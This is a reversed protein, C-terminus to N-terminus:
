REKLNSLFNLNIQYANNNSRSILDNYKMQRKKYTLMQKIEQEVMELPKKEGAPLVDVIRAFYSENKLTFKFFSTNTKQKQLTTIFGSPIQTEALYILGNSVIRCSDPSNNFINNINVGKNINQELRNAFEAYATKIAEFKYYNTEAVFEDSNTDYYEKIESDSVSIIDEIQTKILLNVIMSKRILELEAKMFEDLKINQQQAEQYLLERDVWNNVYKRMANIYDEESGIQVIKQELETRTLKAKNVRAIPQERDFINCQVFFTTLISISLVISLKRM